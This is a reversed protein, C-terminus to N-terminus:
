LGYLLLKGGDATLRASKKQEAGLTQQVEVQAGELSQYVLRKMEEMSNNGSSETYSEIKLVYGADERDCIGNLSVSLEVPAANNEKKVIVPLSLSFQQAKDITLQISKNLYVASWNGEANNVDTRNVEERNKKCSFLFITATILLVINKM